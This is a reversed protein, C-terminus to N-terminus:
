KIALWRTSYDSSCSVLEEQEIPDYTTGINIFFDIAYLLISDCVSPKNTVNSALHKVAAEATILKTERGGGGAAAV